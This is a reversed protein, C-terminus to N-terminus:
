FGSEFVADGRHYLWAAAFLIRLDDFGRVFCANRHHKRADTVEAVLLSAPNASKKPIKRRRTRVFPLENRAGRRLRGRVRRVGDLRRRKSRAV